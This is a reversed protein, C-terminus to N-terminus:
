IPTIIKNVRNRMEELNSFDINPTTGLHFEAVNPFKMTMIDRRTSCCPVEVLPWHALKSSNGTYNKTNERKVGEIELARSYFAVQSPTTVKAQFIGADRFLTAHLMQIKQGSKSRLELETFPPLLLVESSQMEAGSKFCVALLVTLLVDVFGYVVTKVVHTEEKWLLQQDRTIGHTKGPTIFLPGFKSVDSVDTIVTEKPFYLITETDTTKANILNCDGVFEINDTAKNQKFFRFCVGPVFKYKWNAPTSIVVELWESNNTTKLIKDKLFVAIITDLKKNIKIGRVLDNYILDNFATPGTRGAMSFPHEM